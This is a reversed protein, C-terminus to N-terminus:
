IKTLTHFLGGPKPHFIGTTYCMSDRPNKMCIGKETPHSMQVIVLRESTVCYMLCVALCILWSQVIVSWLATKRMM